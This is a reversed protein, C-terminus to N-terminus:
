FKEEQLIKRAHNIIKYSCSCNELTQLYNPVDVQNKMPSTKLEGQITRLQKEVRLLEQQWDGVSVTSHLIKKNM